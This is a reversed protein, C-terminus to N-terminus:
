RTSSGPPPSCGARRAGQRGDAVGEAAAGAHDLAGVALPPKALTPTLFLDYRRTSTARARPHLRQHQELAEFLPRSAPPAASSPSPWPTPRSTATAPASAAAQRRRGPRPAPRVLHDPLRPGAGRRRAAARGGRGRPRARHAAGRRREVAAVAERTPTRRQHGLVRLLRHAAHRASAPDARRVPEAAARAAYAARPDPASSRTSCRRAHRARHAVRRGPHGHRVDARRDAPRVARPRPQDEARGPRQLRRPHPDLRRRRQRGGGPRHRGRGGCGVRRLLRRAHPRPEVPQPGAGM